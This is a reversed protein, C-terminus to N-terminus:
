RLKGCTDGEFSFWAIAGRRGRHGRRRSLNTLFAYTFGASPMAQLIKM